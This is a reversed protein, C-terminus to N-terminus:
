ISIEGLAAAYKSIANHDADGGARFLAAFSASHRATISRAAINLLALM